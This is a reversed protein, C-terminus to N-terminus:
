VKGVSAPERPRDGWREHIERNGISHPCGRFRESLGQMKQLVDSDVHAVFIIRKEWHVHSALLCAFSQKLHLLTKCGDLRAAKSIPAGM